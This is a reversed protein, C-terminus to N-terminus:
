DHVSEWDCCGFSLTKKCEECTFHDLFEHVDCHALKDSGCSPCTLKIM